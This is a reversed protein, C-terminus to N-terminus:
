WETNMSQDRIRAELEDRENHWKKLIEYHKRVIEARQEPPLDPQTANIDMIKILM